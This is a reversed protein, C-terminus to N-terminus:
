PNAPTGYSHKLERFGEIEGLTKFLSLKRKMRAKPGFACIWAVYETFLRRLLYRPVGFMTLNTSEAHLAIIQSQAVDKIWRTAYSETMRSTENRHYVLADPVYLYQMGMKNLRLMFETDEAYAIRTGPGIDERFPGMKYLWEKRLAANLGGPVTGLPLEWHEDGYDRKNIAGEPLIDLGYDKLWDPLPGEWLPLVRGCFGVHNTAYMAAELYSRLWHPEPRVDDDTFVVLEGTVERIAKNLARSKGPKPEELIKLPIRDHDIESQLEEATHDTSSNNILLVEWEVEESLDQCSLADFFFPL